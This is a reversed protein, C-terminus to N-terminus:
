PVETQASERAAQERKFTEVEWPISWFRLYEAMPPLGVAARREDVRDPDDLPLVYHKGTAPDRGIQSGYIQRRKQGLAVRDELLALSMAMADGQKVAERMMPLYKVQTAHDAHQIVLFLARSAKHGVVKPGVWGREELIAKVQVLNAADKERITQWLAKLEPSDRGFEKEVAALRQRPAQDEELIALLRQQLAKDSVNEEGGEVAQLSAILKKWEDTDRLSDFAANSTLRQTLKWGKGVAQQLWRLALERDGAQAAAGAAFVLENARIPEQAFAARFAEVAEAHQGAKHLRRGELLQPSVERLLAPASLRASTVLAEYAPTIAVVKEAPVKVFFLVHGTPSAIHTLLECWAKANSYDAIYTLAPSGNITRHVFSSARNAYNQHGDNRARLVAKRAAQTTLWTEFGIEPTFPEYYAQYYVGVFVERHEKVELYLTSELEGWRMGDVLEWGPPCTLTVGYDADRVARDPGTLQSLSVSQARAAAAVLLASLLVLLTKM